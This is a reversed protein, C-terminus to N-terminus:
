NPVNVRVDEVKWEGDIFKLSVLYWDETESTKGDVSKAIGRVMVNWRVVNESTNSVQTVDTTEATLYARELTERRLAKKQKEYLADAMYPKANELYSTPNDSDYNHFAKSFEVATEQSDKLEKESFHEKQDYPNEEENETTAVPDEQDSGAAQEIENKEEKKEGKNM